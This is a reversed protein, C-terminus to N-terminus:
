LKLTLHVAHSEHLYKGVTAAHDDCTTLQREHINSFGTTLTDTVTEASLAM